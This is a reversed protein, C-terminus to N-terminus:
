VLAHISILDGMAYRIAKVEDCEVRTRPNFYQSDAYVYGVLKDCEVRTRPNFNGSAIGPVDPVSQRM